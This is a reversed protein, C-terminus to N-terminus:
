TIYTLLDAANLSAATSETAFAKLSTYVEQADHDEHHKRVLDRGDDIKLVREFVSYIYLNQKSFLRIEEATSPTYTEDLVEKCGQLKVQTLFERHWNDWHVIDQLIPFLSPDKKFSREFLEAESYKPTTKLSQSTSTTSHSAVSPASNLKYTHDPDWIDLRFDDFDEGPIECWKSDIDFGDNKRCIYFARLCRLLSRSGRNLSVLKQDPGGTEPHMLQDLDSDTLKVVCRIDDKYGDNGLASDINGTKDDLFEDLVHKYAKKAYNTRETRTRNM